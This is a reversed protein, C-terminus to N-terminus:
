SSADVTFDESTELHEIALVVLNGAGSVTVERGFACVVEDVFFDPLNVEISRSIALFVNDSHLHKELGESVLSVWSFSDSGTGDALWALLLSRDLDRVVLARSFIVDEM